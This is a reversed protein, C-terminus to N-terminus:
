DRPEVHNERRDLPVVCLFVRERCFTFPFLRWIFFVSSAREYVLVILRNLFQM